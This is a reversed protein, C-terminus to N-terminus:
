NNLIKIVAASLDSSMFPKTLKPYNEAFGLDPPLFDKGYGTMMLVPISPNRIEIKMALDLGSVGGPMIIDTLVLDIKENHDIIEM